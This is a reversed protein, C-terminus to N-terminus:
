EVRWSDKVDQLVAEHAAFCTTSCGLVLTKLPFLDAGAVDKGTPRTALMTEQMVRMVTGSPAASDRSAGADPRVELLLSRREWVGEVTPGSEALVTVHGAAIAADLDTILANRAATRAADLGPYLNVILIGGPVDGFMPRTPDVGEPGFAEIYGPAAGPSGALVAAADFGKWDGPAIVSTGYTSNGLYSRSLPISTCSALGVVLLLVAALHRRTTM